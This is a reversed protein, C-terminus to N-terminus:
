PNQTQFASFRSKKKKREESGYSDSTLKRIKKCWNLLRKKENRVINVVFVAGSFDDSAPSFSQPSLTEGAATKRSCVFSLGMAVLAISAPSSTGSSLVHARPPLPSLSSLPDFATVFEHGNLWNPPCRSAM